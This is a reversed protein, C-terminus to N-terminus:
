AQELHKLVVDIVRNARELDFYRDNFLNVIESHVREAVPFASRGVSPYHRSAFLGAAFISAVLAEAKPVRINFRWKQLEPAFQIAAPLEREYLANLTAKHTDAAARAEAVAHCYEDWPQEPARLDLWPASVRNSASREYVVREAVQAFGGGSLDVYKARGTSFLTADAIPATKEDYDPRCLCRDDILLLDSQVSRLQEFFPAANCESGYPRVFLIGGYAGSQVRDVVTERDIELSREDIDVFEVAQEAEAFTAPVIPCVNAPLLFPRRDARRRLLNYIIACARREYVIM